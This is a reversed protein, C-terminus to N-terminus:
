IQMVLIELATRPEIKGTKIAIETDLLNQYIKKLQELTFNQAQQYSKQLVFPHLGMKKTLASFSLGRSLLDKVMILNRFQYTIMTLLYIENEGQNLHEQIFSLTSKKNQQGIADITKFINTQIKSHVLLDVDATKITENNTYSLLKSIEVDMLWLDHGIFEILRQLAGNDIRGGRKDIERKVWDSLKAGALLKFEEWMNPKKVLEGFLVNKSNIKGEEFLVIMTDKDDGLNKTKLYELIQDTADQAFINELIILKKEQFMPSVEVIEKFHEFDFDPLRNFNLGSQHITKYREIIENLKCRSRFTDPGYLLIFM